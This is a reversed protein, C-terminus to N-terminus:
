GGVGLPAVNHYIYCSWPGSGGPTTTELDYVRCYHDMLLVPATVIGAVPLVLAPTERSDSTLAAFYPDGEPDLGDYHFIRARVGSSAVQPLIPPGYFWPIYDIQSRISGRFGPLRFNCTIPEGPEVPTCASGDGGGQITSGTRTHLGTACSTNAPATGGCKAVEWDGPLDHRPEPVTPTVDTPMAAALSSLTLAGLALAVLRM